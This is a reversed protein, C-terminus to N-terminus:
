IKMASVSINISVCSFAEKGCVALFHAISRHTITTQNRKYPTLVLCSEGISFLQSPVTKSIVATAWQLAFQM